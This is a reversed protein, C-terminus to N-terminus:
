HEHNRWGHRSSFELIGIGMLKEQATSLISMGVSVVEGEDFWLLDSQRCLVVGHGSQGFGEGSGLSPLAGKWCIISKKFRYLGSRIFCVTAGRCYRNAGVLLSKLKKCLEM